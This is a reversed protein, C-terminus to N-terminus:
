CTVGVAWRAVETPTIPTGGCRRLAHLGTIHREIAPRRTEAFIRARDGDALGRGLTRAIRDLTAPDNIFGDEYRFLMARTDLMFRACARASGEIREIAQFLRHRQYLM